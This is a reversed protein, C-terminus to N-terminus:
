FRERPRQKEDIVHLVMRSRSPGKPDLILIKLLSQPAPLCQSSAPKSCVTPAKFAGINEQM